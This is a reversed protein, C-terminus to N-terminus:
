MHCKRLWHKSFYDSGRLRCDVCVTGVTLCTAWLTFVCVAPCQLKCCLLEPWISFHPFFYFATLHLMRLWGLNLHHKKHEHNVRCCSWATCVIKHLSYHSMPNKYTQMLSHWKEQDIHKPPQSTFFFFRIQSSDSEIKTLSHFSVNLFLYMNCDKTKYQISSTKSGLFWRQSGNLHM